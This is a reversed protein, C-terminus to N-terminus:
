RVYSCVQPVNQPVDLPSEPKVIQEQSPVQPVQVQEIAFQTFPEVHPKAPLLHPYPAPPLGPDVTPPDNFVLTMNYAMEPIYADWGDHPHADIHNPLQQIVTETSAFAISAMRDSRRNACASPYPSPHLDKDPARRGDAGADLLKRMRAVCRTSARSLRPRLGDVLLADLDLTAGSNSPANPVPSPGPCTGSTSTMEHM